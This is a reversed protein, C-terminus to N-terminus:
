LKLLHKRLAIAVAETRNTTTKLNIKHVAKALEEAVAAQSVELRDAAPDMLMFEADAFIPDSLLEKAISLVFGSGAGLMSIKLKKM